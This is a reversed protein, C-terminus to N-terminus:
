ESHLTCQKKQTSLENNRRLTFHTTEESHFTRPKEQTYLANNIRLFTRQKKQTYLANNRRLTFNTTDKKQTFHEFYIANNGLTFHTIEESHFHTTEESTRQKKQTYLENHKKQTYLANNRRLTFHTTEESHLTRQIKKTYLENM